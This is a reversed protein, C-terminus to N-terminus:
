VYLSANYNKTKEAVAKGWDSIVKNNALQLSYYYKKKDDNVKEGGITTNVYDDSVTYDSITQYGDERVSCNECIMKTIGLLLDSKDMIMARLVYMELSLRDENEKFYTEKNYIYTRGDKTTFKVNRNTLDVKERVAKPYYRGDWIKSIVEKKNDYIVLKFTCEWPDLLPSNFENEEENTEDFYYWSYVRSKSKLDDDIMRVINDVTYKFDITEMSGEIFDYIWFNRICIVNDNVFLAFEFRGEKYEKQSNKKEEM